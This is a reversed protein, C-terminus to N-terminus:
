PGRVVGEEGVVVVLPAKGMFTAFIAPGAWRHDQAPHMARPILRMVEIQEKEDTRATADVRRPIHPETAPPQVPFMPQGSFTGGHPQEPFRQGPSEPRSM